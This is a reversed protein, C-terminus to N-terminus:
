AEALMQVNDAMMNRVRTTPQRAARREGATACVYVLQLGMFEVHGSSGARAISYLQFMVFAVRHTSNQSHKDSAFSM